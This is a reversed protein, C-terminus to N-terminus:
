AARRDVRTHPRNASTHSLPARRPRFRASAVRQLRTLFTRIAHALTTATAAVAFIANTLPRRGSAQRSTRARWVCVRTPLRCGGDATAVAEAACTSRFADLCSIFFTAEDIDLFFIHVHDSARFLRARARQRRRFLSRRGCARRRRRRRRRGGRRRGAARAM